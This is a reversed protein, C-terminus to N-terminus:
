LEQVKRWARELEELQEPCPSGLFAGVATRLEANAAAWQADRERNALQDCFTCPGIQRRGFDIIGTDNCHKCASM